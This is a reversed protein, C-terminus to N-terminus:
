DGVEGGSSRKFSEIEDALRNFSSNIEEAMYYAASMQDRNDSVACSQVYATFIELQSAFERLFQRRMDDVITESAKSIVIVGERGIFIRWLSM